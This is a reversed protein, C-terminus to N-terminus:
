FLYGFFCKPLFSKYPITFTEVESACQKLIQLERLYRLQSAMESKAKPANIM